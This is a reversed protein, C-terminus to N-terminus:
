IFLSFHSLSSFFSCLGDAHLLTIYPSFCFLSPLPDLSLSFPPFSLFLATSIGNSARSLDARHWAGIFVAATSHFKHSRCLALSLAHGAIIIFVSRLKCTVHLNATVWFWDRVCECVFQVNKGEHKLVNFMYFVAKALATSFVPLCVCTQVYVGRTFINPPRTRTRLWYPFRLSVCVCM